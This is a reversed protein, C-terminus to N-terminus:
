HDPICVTVIRTPLGGVPQEIRACRESLLTITPVDLRIRVIVIPHVFRHSTRHLLLALTTFQETLLRLPLVSSMHHLPMQEIPLELLRVDSDEVIQHLEPVIDDRELHALPKLVTPKALAHLPM